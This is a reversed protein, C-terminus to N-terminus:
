CCNCWSNWVMMLRRWGVVAGVVVVAAAVVVVVAASVVVTIVVVSPVVGAGPVVVVTELYFRFNLWCDILSNFGTNFSKKKRGDAKDQTM